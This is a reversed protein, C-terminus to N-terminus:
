PCHSGAVQLVLRAGPDGPELGVVTGSKVHLGVSCCFWPEPRCWHVLRREMSQPATSVWCAVLKQLSLSLCWELMLVVRVSELM